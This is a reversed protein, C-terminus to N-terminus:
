SRHGREIRKAAGSVEMAYALMLGGWFVWIIRHFFLSLVSGVAQKPSSFGAAEPSYATSISAMLAIVLATVEFPVAETIWWTIAWFMIGLAINPLCPFVPNVLDGSSLSRLPSAIVMVMFLLPGLYFGLRQINM